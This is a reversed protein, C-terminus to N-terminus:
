RQQAKRWAQIATASGQQPQRRICGVSEILAGNRVRKALGDFVPAERKLDPGVLGQSGFSSLGVPPGEWVTVLANLM